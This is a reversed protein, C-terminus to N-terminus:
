INKRRRVIGLGLLGVGFLALTAPEPVVRIYDVTVDLAAVPSATGAGDTDFNSILQFSFINSLDFGADFTFDNAFSTFFTAPGPFAVSPTLEVTSGTNGNIDILLFQWAMGADSEILGVEIGQQGAFSVGLGAGAVGDYTVTTQAISGSGGQTHIFLGTGGGFAVQANGNAGTGGGLFDLTMDRVGGIITGAVDPAQDIVSASTTGADVSLTTNPGSFEDITLYGANASGLAVVSLVSGLLLAKFTDMM